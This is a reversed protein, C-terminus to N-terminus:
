GASVSRGLLASWKVAPPDVRACRPGGNVDTLVVTAGLGGAALSAADIVGPDIRNLMLKARRFMDFGIFTDVDGWTLYIFREGRRGQVAPGRFDIGDDSRILDVELEWQAQPADARILQAPSRGVQVGVHVNNMMSGDPRCFTRGPLRVGTITVRM